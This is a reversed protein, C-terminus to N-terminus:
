TPVPTYKRGTSELMMKWYKQHLELSKDSEQLLFRERRAPYGLYLLQAYIRFNMNLSAVREKDPIKEYADQTEDYLDLMESEISSFDMLTWGWYVHTIFPIENYLSSYKKDQLACRMLEITTGRKEGHENLPLNEVAKRTPGRTREFYEDLDACLSDPLKVGSKGQARKLGRIFNNRDDYNTKTQPTNVACISSYMSIQIGCNCITMGGTEQCNDILEGCSPCKALKQYKDTRQIYIFESALDLYRAILGRKKEITSVDEEVKKGMDYIRFSAREPAALRQYERLLIASEQLFWERKHFTDLLNQLHDLRRHNPDPSANIEEIERLIEEKNYYSFISLIIDHIKGIKLDKSYVVEVSDYDKPDM